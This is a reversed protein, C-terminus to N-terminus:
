PFPASQAGSVSGNLRARLLLLFFARAYPPQCQPGGLTAQGVPESNTSMEVSVSAVAFLREDRCSGFRPQSYVRM